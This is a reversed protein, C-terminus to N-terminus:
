LQTGLCFMSHFGDELKYSDSEFGELMFGNKMLVRLSPLNFNLVKTYLRKLELVDRAYGVILSLAETAYGKNWHEKGIWYGVHAKFDVYDIDKLGIIGVLLDERFILFDIAFHTKGYKRNMDLFIKADEETYPSPFGHGGIRRAIETDNAIRSVQLAYKQKLDNTLHLRRGNLVIKDEVSTISQVGYSGNPIFFLQM